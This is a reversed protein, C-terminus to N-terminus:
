GGVPGDPDPLPIISKVIHRHAHVISYSTIEFLNHDRKQGHKDSCVDAMPYPSSTLIAERM